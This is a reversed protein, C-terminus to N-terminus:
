KASHNGVTSQQRTARAPTTKNTKARKTERIQDTQQKRKSTKAPKDSINVQQQM